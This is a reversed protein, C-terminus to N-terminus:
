GDDVEKLPIGLTNDCDFIIKQPM